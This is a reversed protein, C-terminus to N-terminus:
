GLNISNKKMERSLTCLTNMNPNEEEEALLSESGVSVCM